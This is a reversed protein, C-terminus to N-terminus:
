IVIIAPALRLSARRINANDLIRQFESPRDASVTIGGNSGILRVSRGQSLIERADRLVSVLPSTSEECCLRDWEAAGIYLNGNDLYVPSTNEDSLVNFQYEQPQINMDYKKLLNEAKEVDGIGYQGAGISDELFRALSWDNSLNKEGELKLHLDRLSNAIKTLKKDM